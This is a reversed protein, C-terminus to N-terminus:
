GAEVGLYAAHRRSVHPEIKLRRACGGCEITAAEGDTTTGCHACWVRRRPGEVVFAVIESAVAGGKEAVACARLVDVEPGALMLRWGVKANQIETALLALVEGTAAEGQWYWVPATIRAKWGAAIPAAAPGFSMVAFTRGTGDVGPDAVPWAPVSSGM